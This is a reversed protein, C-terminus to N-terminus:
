GGKWLWLHLVAEVKELVHTPLHLISNLHRVIHNGPLNNTLVGTVGADSNLPDNAVNGAHIHKPVPGNSIINNYYSFESDAQM